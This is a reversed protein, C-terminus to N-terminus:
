RPAKQAVNQWFFGVSLHVTDVCVVVAPKVDVRPQVNARLALPRGRHDHLAKLTDRALEHALHTPNKDKLADIRHYEHCRSLRWSTM